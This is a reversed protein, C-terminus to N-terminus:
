SWYRWSTQIIKQNAGLLLSFGHIHPSDLNQELKIPRERRTWASFKHSVKFCNFKDDVWVCGVMGCGRMSLEHEIFFIIFHRCNVSETCYGKMLDEFYFNILSIAFHDPSFPFPCETGSGQTCSNLPTHWRRRHIVKIITTLRFKQLKLSPLVYQLGGAQKRFMQVQHENFTRPHDSTMVLPLLLFCSITGLHFPGTLHSVSVLWVLSSSVSAVM